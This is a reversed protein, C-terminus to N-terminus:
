FPLDGDGQTLQRPAAPAATSMLMAMTNQGSAITKRAVAKGIGFKFRWMKRKANNPLPGRFLPTIRVNVLMTPHNALRESLFQKLQANETVDIEGGVPVLIPKKDQICQLEKTLRFMYFRSLRKQGENEEDDFEVDRCGIPYGELPQGTYLENEPNAPDRTSQLEPKWRPRDIIFDCFEDKEVPASGTQSTTPPAEVEKSKGTKTAKDSNSVQQTM